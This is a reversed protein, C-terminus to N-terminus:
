PREGKPAPKKYPQQLFWRGDSQVFSVTRDSGEKLSVTATAGEKEWAGKELFARLQKAAGPDDVLKATVEALLEDQSTEKIRRDVFQPDALHAVIYDARKAVIAKLVSALTKEPTAQPYTKLDAEVGFRKAPADAALAAASLLIVLAAPALRM